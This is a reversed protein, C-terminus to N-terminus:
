SGDGCPDTVAGQIDVSCSATLELDKRCCTMFCVMVSDRSGLAVKRICILLHLM